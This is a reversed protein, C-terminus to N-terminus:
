RMTVQLMPLNRREQVGVQKILNRAVEALAQAEPSDPNAATSPTGADGSERLQQVLPVEGLFPVRLRECAQRVGGHGFINHRASCTDCVFYSMNEVIGLIPVHTQKFMLLARTAISLAVDQPTSVIVVGTLKLAQSLTLQADGTGPPLDILLYDLDTWAVDRLLQQVAQAVMPGRWITPQDPPLLVGLSMMKIGHADLPVIKEDAVTPQEHNGLLAPISPGYIDADLLGVRLGTQALAVAL